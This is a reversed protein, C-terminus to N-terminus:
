AAGKAAGALAREIDREAATLAAECRASLDALVTAHAGIYARLEQIRQARATIAGERSLEAVEAALQAALAEVHSAIAEAASARDAEGVSFRLMRGGTRGLIEAARDVSHRYEKPVFYAGGRERLPVLGAAGGGIVATVVESVDAASASWRACEIARAVSSPVGAGFTVADATVTILGASSYDARDVGRQRTAIHWRALEGPQPRLRAAVYISRAGCSDAIGRAAATQWPTV